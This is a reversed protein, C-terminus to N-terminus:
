KEPNRRGFEPFMIKDQACRWDFGLHFECNFGNSLPGEYLDDLVHTGFDHITIDEFLEDTQLFMILHKVFAELPIRERVLDSPFYYTKLHTGAQGPLNFHRYGPHHKSAVELSEHIDQLKAQYFARAVEKISDQKVDGRLVERTNARLTSAFAMKQNKRKTIQRTNKHVCFKKRGRFDAQVRFTNTM